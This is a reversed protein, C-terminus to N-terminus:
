AAIEIREQDKAEQENKPEAPLQLVTAKQGEVLFTLLRQYGDPFELCDHHMYPQHKNIQRFIAVRYSTPSDQAYTKVDDDFAIETGPM